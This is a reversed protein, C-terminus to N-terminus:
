EQAVLHERLHITDLAGEAAAMEATLDRDRRDNGRSPVGDLIGHIDEFRALAVVVCSLMTRYCTLAQSLRRVARPTFPAYEEAGHSIHIGHAGHAAALDRIEGLAAGATYELIMAGSSDSRGDALFDDTGTYRGDFLLSLRALLLASEHALASILNEAALALEITSFNGTHLVDVPDHLVVPNENAGNILHEIVVVCRELADHVAGLSQPILRLSFPDQVRVPASDLVSSVRAAVSRVGASRHLTGEPAFHEPTAGVERSVAAALDTATSLTVRLDACTVAADAITLASSSMFPLGDSAAFAVGREVLQMALAGLAALDGTGLSSGFTIDFSEAHHAEQLLAEALPLSVGSGGVALQAARVLMAARTREPGVPAGFRMSHSKWLRLCSEDDRTVEAVRRAGVGTSLGYVARVSALSLLSAHADAIRTRAQATFVADVEARAFRAVDVLTVPGAGLRIM